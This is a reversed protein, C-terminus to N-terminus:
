LKTHQHCDQNVIKMDPFGIGIKCDSSTVVHKKFFLVKARGPIRTKVELDLEGDTIDRILSMVGSDAFRSAELVLVCVLISSGKSPVLGPDIDVDGVEDGMYLLQAKGEAARFSVHNPNTVLITVNLTVNLDIKMAPLLTIRPAIGEVTTSVLQIKPQKVKFVTLLLVVVVVVVVLLKILCLCMCLRLWRKRKPDKSLPSAPDLPVTDGTTHGNEHNNNNMSM